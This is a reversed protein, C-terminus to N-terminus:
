AQKLGEEKRFALYLFLVVVGTILSALLILLKKGAAFRRRTMDRYLWILCLLSFLAMDFVTIALFWDSTTARWVDNFTHGSQLWQYLCYNYFAFLAIGLLLLVTKKM